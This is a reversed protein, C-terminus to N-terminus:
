KTNIRRSIEVIEVVKIVVEVVEILRWQKEVVKCNQSQEVVEVVKIM